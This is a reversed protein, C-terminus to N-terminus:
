FFATIFSAGIKGQSWSPKLAEAEANIYSFGNSPVQYHFGITFNGLNLDLRMRYALTTQALFTKWTEGCFVNARDGMWFSVGLGQNIDLGLLTGAAFSLTTFSAVETSFGMGVMGFLEQAIDDKFVPRGTETVDIIEGQQILLHGDLNIGLVRARIEGGTAWNHVDIVSVLQTEPAFLNNQFQNISGFGLSFLNGAVALSPLVLILCIIIFAKKV